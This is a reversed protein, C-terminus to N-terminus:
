LEGRFSISFHYTPMCNYIFSCMHPPSKGFPRFCGGRQAHRLDCIGYADALPLAASRAELITGSAFRGGFFPFACPLSAFAAFCDRWM